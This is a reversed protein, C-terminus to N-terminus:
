KWIGVFVHTGLNLSVRRVGAGCTCITASARAEHAETDMLLPLFTHVRLCVQIEKHVYTGMPRHATDVHVDM